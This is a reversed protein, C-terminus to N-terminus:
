WVAFVGGEVLFIVLQYGVFLLWVSLPPGEFISYTLTVTVVFGVWVLLGALLGSLFGTSGFAQVVLALILAAIFAAIFSLIFLWPKSEIEESKKGILRLWLKGFFPGYWLPGLVMNFVGGLVVAIYNVEGFDM